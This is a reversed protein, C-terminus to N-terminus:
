GRGAGAGLMRMMPSEALGALAPGVQEVIAEVKRAHDAIGDVKHEVDALRDCLDRRLGDVADALTQVAAALEAVGTGNTSASM